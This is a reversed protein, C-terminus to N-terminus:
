RRQSKSEKACHQGEKGTCLRLFEAQGADTKEDDFCGIIGSVVYESPESYLANEADSAAMGRLEDGCADMVCEGAFWPTQLNNAEEIAADIRAQLSDQNKEDAFRIGGEIIAELINEFAKDEAADKEPQTLQDYTKM